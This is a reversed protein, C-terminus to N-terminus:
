QAIFAESLDMYSEGPGQVGFVNKKMTRLQSVFFSIVIPTQDQQIQSLQTALDLRSAEDVTAVYQNFTRAFQEDDWHSSNWASEPLLMAQVYVAPTPRAAWEVVGFAANLWPADEPGGAYWANYDVIEIDVTIGGPKCQQQILQAYQPTELYKMASLTVTVGDAYGADSLLQKAKAYDQSRVVNPPMAPYVQPNFFSDYGLTGRGDYLSENIAPRDLCLALAQRVRYDTWPDKTTNFFLERIGPSKFVLVKLNPDAFLSQSGQFTTEAQLDIAGSQLQLVQAAEEEIMVFDVQDLYPLARGQADKGWYTPNKTATCRQKATYDKLVWPGTGVPNKVWDGEYTRPLMVANYSSQCVLYPFDAFPKDLDFAVTYQDVKETGGPSLIGQFAALAGSGSNPDVLREISAVVDEAEFPSGDSFQVGQRLKFTWVDGKENPAWSEALVPRLSFDDNLNMLYECFQQILTVGGTDYITVPDLDTLSPAIAVKLTGGMVPAPAGSGSAAPSASGGDGDGGCATLLHGAATASLGFVSARVLLQRRTMRGSKVMDILHHGYERRYQEDNMDVETPM